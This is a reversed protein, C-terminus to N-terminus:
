MKDGVLLKWNEVSIKRVSKWRGIVELVGYKNEWVKESKFMKGCKGGIEYKYM